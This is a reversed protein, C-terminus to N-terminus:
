EGRLERQERREQAAIRLQAVFWGIEAELLALAKATARKKVLDEASAFAAVIEVLDNLAKAAPASYSVVRLGRRVVDAWEEITAATRTGWRARTQIQDYQTLVALGAALADRRIADLFRVFGWRVDDM